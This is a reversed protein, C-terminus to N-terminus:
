KLLVMKNNRIDTDVRVSYIYMGASVPNGHNNTANWEVSKYGSIEFRNLLNKVIRGKMDYITIDVLGDKPISYDISTSPNFPNPYNQGVEFQTPIADNSLVDLEELIFSLTPSYDTWYGVFASLRFFNLTNLTINEVTHSNETVFVEVYNETFLSDTSQEVKYYQLGPDTIHLWTLFVSSDVLSGNFGLPPELMFESAGLDPASGLFDTVEDVGDSDFDSM